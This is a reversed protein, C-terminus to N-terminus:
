KAGTERHASAARRQARAARSWRRAADRSLAAASQLRDLAAVGEELGDVAREAAVHIARRLAESKSVRLRRAMRELARVSEADLAYTAKIKPIAM